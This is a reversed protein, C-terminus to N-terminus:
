SFNDKPVEKINSIDYDNPLCAYETYVGDGLDMLMGDEAYVEVLTNEGCQNYEIRM